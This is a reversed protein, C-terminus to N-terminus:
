LQCLSSNIIISINSNGKFLFSIPFPLLLHYLNIFCCISKKELKVENKCINILKKIETTLSETNCM